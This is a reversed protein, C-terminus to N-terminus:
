QGAQVMCVIPANLPATGSPASHFQVTAGASLAASLTAADTSALYYTNGDCSTVASTQAGGQAVVAAVFSPGSQSGLRMSFFYETGSQALAATSFLCCLVTGGLLRRRM